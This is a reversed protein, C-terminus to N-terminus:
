KNIPHPEAERQGIISLLMAALILAMGLLIRLTLVDGGWLYGTIGAFVPEMTLIVAFRTPTSYKQMANQLLFALTTAFVATVLIAGIVTPPFHQPLPEFLLGIILCVVGVMLIQVSTIALPNHHPSYRDVSIIHLAFGLACVLVLLDGRGLHFTGPQVSMLYLGTAALLVTLIVSIGLLRRHIISYLIPVLVVSLGTIFGANSSSTYQLGVTQFTYGILLFLGIITGNRWVAPTILGINKTSLLALLLFAIIFRIGLFLFPGIDALANKTMLFTTGWIFAVILMSLEAQSRKSINNLM